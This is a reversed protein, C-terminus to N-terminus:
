AAVLKTNINEVTKISTIIFTVILALFISLTILPVSELISFSIERWFLTAEGSNSAVLSLYEFVGGAKLNNWLNQFSIILGAFSALSFIGFGLFNRQSRNKELQDVRESISERLGQPLPYNARHKILQKISKDM